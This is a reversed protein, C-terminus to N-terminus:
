PLELLNELIQVFGVVSNQRETLIYLALAGFACNQDGFVQIHLQFRQSYPHLSLVVLIVLDFHCVDFAILL